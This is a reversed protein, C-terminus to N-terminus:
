DIVEKIVVANNHETDKAAYVLTITGRRVYGKLRGVVEPKGELEKKYRKKFEPWKSPEHGFWKRLNDTPAIEKMWEDIEAEDKKLGRPWLRDVLIRKGDHVSPGDYVRKIKIM